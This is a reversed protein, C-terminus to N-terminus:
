HQDRLSWQLPIRNVFRDDIDHIVVFGTGNARLHRTADHLSPFEMRPSEGDKEVCVGHRDLSLFLHFDSAM